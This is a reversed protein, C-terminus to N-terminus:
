NTKSTFVFFKQYSVVPEVAAEVSVLNSFAFRSNENRSKERRVKPKNIILPMVELDPEPEEAGGVPDPFLWDGMTFLVEFVSNINLGPPAYLPWIPKLKAMLDNEFVYNRSEKPMERSKIYIRSLNEFDLDANIFANVIMDSDNRILGESKNQKLRAKFEWKLRFRDLSIKCKEVDKPEEKTEKVLQAWPIHGFQNFYDVTMRSMTIFKSLFNIMLIKAPAGDAHIRYTGSFGDIKLLLSKFGDIEFFTM